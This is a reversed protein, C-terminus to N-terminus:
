NSTEHPNSIIVGFTYKCKPIYVIARLYNQEHNSGRRRALSNQHIPMVGM